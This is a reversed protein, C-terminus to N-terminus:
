VSAHGTAEDGIQETVCVVVGNIVFAASRRVVLDDISHNEIVIGAVSLSTVGVGDLAVTGIAGTLELGVEFVFFDLRLALGLLRDGPDPEKGLVAEHDVEFLVGDGTGSPDDDRDSSMDFATTQNLEGTRTIRTRETRLAGLQGLTAINTDPQVLRGKGSGTSTLRLGLPDGVVPRGPGLDFSFEAV